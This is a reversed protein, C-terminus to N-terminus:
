IDEVDSEEDDSEDEETDEEEDSTVDGLVPHGADISQPIHSALFGNNIITPNKSLYDFVNVLWQGGLCKMRPTSLDTPEFDDGTMESDSYQRSVEDSYWTQFQSRLFSKAAKNVSIDLPQLRDTCNAPVLVSQINHKEM